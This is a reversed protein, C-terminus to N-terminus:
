PLKLSDRPLISVSPILSPGLGKNSLPRKAGTPQRLHWVCYAPTQPYSWAISIVVDEANGLSSQNWHEVM